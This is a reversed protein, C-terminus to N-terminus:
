IPGIFSKLVHIVNQSFSNLISARSDSGFYKKIKKNEVLRGEQNQLEAIRKKYKKVMLICFVGFLVATGIGVVTLIIIHNYNEARKVYLTMTEPSKLKGHFAATCTVDTHDDKEEPIFTLISQVEWLGRQVERRIETAMDATGKNWTLKPVHSPCTHTVSCTVTYPHDQNATQFTPSMSFMRFEVCQEVFSFKDTTSTNTSTKALEIRFCFPGNDHDKIDIIELTYIPNLNSVFLHDARNQYQKMVKSKDPHYFIQNTADTWMGTFGTLTKGPPNPFNFLCPIVVCSGPLGKIKVCWVHVKQDACVKTVDSTRQPLI